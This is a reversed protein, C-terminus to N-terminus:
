LKNVKLDRGMLLIPSGQFDEVVEYDFGLKKYFSKNKANPGTMIHFGHIKHTKFREELNAVLMGGVGMGRADHHCNIHLHAPYKQYHSAFNKLHPQVQYLEETSSEPAGVIYGLVRDTVAILAFEPYHKLYLGVYKYFFAEKEEESKFEKRTSSEFFIERVEPLYKSEYPVILASM